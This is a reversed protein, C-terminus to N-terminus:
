EPSNESFSDNKLLEAITLTEDGIQVTDGIKWTSDQDSTALVFNSDRFVKSLDSGRKLASDKKLCQLDFDDYSILDVTGSFNTDDNLKASVDFVSRRGYVEKVGYLRMRDGKDGVPSDNTLVHFIIM